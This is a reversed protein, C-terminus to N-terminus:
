RGEEDRRVIIDIKKVEGYKKFRSSLEAETVEDFLGGIHLRKQKSGMVQLM